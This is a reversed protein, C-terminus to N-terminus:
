LSPRRRIRMEFQGSEYQMSTRRIRVLGSLRARSLSDTVSKGSCGFLSNQQLNAASLCLATPPEITSQLLCRHRSEAVSLRAGAGVVPAGAPPFRHRAIQLGIAARELPRLFEPRRGGPRDIPLPPPVTHEIRGPRGEEPPIRAGAEVGAPISDVAMDRSA